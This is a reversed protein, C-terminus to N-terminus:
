KNVKIIAEVKFTDDELSPPWAEVMAKLQLFSIHLWLHVQLLRDHLLLQYFEPSTAVVLFPGVLQPQLRHIDLLSM